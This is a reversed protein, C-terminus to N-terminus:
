SSGEDYQSVIDMPDLPLYVESDRDGFNRLAGERTGQILFLHELVGYREPSIGALMAITGCTLEPKRLRIQKLILDGLYERGSDQEFSLRLVEWCKDLSPQAQLLVAVVNKNGELVASMLLSDGNEEEWNVNAGADILSQVMRVHSRAIAISLPSCVGSSDTQNVDAGRAILQQAVGLYGKRCATILLTDHGSNVPILSAGAELLVRAVESFGREVAITLASERVQSEWNVDVGRDVLSQVLDLYGGYCALLLPTGLSGDENLPAGAEILIQAIEEYGKDLAIHLATDGNYPGGYIRQNAGIGAKLLMRVVETHGNVVALTLANHGWKNTQNINAGTNVLMSIIKANGKVAAVMLPSLGGKGNLQDLPVQLKILERVGDVDELEVAQMLTM